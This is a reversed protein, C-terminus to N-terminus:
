CIKHAANVDIFQLWRKLLVIQNIAATYATASPVIQAVTCVSSVYHKYQLNVQNYSVCASVTFVNFIMRSLPYDIYRFINSLNVFISIMHMVSLM